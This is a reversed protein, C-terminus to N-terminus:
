RTGCSYSLQSSMSYHCLGLHLLVFASWNRWHCLPLSEEKRRINYVIACDLTAGDYWATAVSQSLQLTAKLQEFLQETFISGIDTHDTLQQISRNLAAGMWDLMSSICLRRHTMAALYRFYKQETGLQAGGM